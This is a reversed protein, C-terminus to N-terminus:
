WRGRCGGSAPLQLEERAASRIRGSLASGEVLHPMHARTMGTATLMADSWDRKGVNLWGTGSADSM